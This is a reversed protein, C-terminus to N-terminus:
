ATGAAWVYIARGSLRYANIKYRKSKETFVQNFIKTHTQSAVVGRHACAGTVAPLAGSMLALM